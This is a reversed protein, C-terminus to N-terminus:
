WSIQIKKKKKKTHKPKSTLAKARAFCANQQKLWM